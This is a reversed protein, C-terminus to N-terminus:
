QTRREAKEIEKAFKPQVPSMAHIILWGFTAEVAIIEVSKGSSLWGICLWRPPEDDSERRICKTISEWAQIVQERELHKLANPHIEIDM